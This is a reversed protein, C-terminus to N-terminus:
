GMRELLREKGHQERLEVYPQRYILSAALYAGKLQKIAGDKTDYLSKIFTTGGKQKTNITISYLNKTM